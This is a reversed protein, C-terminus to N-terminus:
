RAASLDFDYFHALLRQWLSVHRVMEPHGQAYALENQCIRVLAGLSRPEGVEAKVIEAQFADAQASDFVGKAVIRSELDAFAKALDAHLRAKKAYGLVLSATSTITIAAAAVVMADPGALKTIAAAGGIVSVAKTLADCMDFFRERKQHYIRSIWCRCLLEHRRAWVDDDWEM